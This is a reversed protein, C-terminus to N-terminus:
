IDELSDVLKIEKTFQSWPYTTPPDSKEFIFDDKTPHKFKLQHAWLAIQAGKKTVHEGYKQDGYIPCGVASLQVRIQHPRGTHLQVSLLSLDNFSYLEKYTLIAKKADKQNPSAIYVKNEKGDKFLYDVLEGSADPMRGHIIALYSRDIARRRSQDSLRSAAKSTKAFIMVGGVPRDLRHILGLYVNGPKQYRKKLDAKLLDLMHSDNSSDGQVPINVPKEVVLVHNDEYLIPIDLM